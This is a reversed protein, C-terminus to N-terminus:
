EESAEEGEASHANVHAIVGARPVATDGCIPCTTVEAKPAKGAKTGKEANGDESVAARTARPSAVVARPAAASPPAAARPVGITVGPAGVEYYATVNNSEGFTRGSRKDERAPDLRVMVVCHQGEVAEITDDMDDGLDIKCAKLFQKMRRAAISSKWTERDTGEPDDNTGITFRDFIIQGKYGKPEAIKLQAVYMLKARATDTSKSMTDALEKVVVEYAGAPVLTTDPIDKWPPKAGM